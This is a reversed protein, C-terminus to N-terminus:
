YGMIPKAIVEKKNNKLVVYAKKFNNQNSFGSHKFDSQVYVDLFYENNPSTITKSFQYKPKLLFYALIGIILLTPLIIYTMKSKM